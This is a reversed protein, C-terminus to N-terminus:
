VHSSGHRVLTSAGLCIGSSTCPNFESFARAMMVLGTILRSSAVGTRLGRTPCRWVGM